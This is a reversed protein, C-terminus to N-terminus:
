RAPAISAAERAAPSTNRRIAAGPRTPDHPRSLCAAAAPDFTAAAISRAIIRVPKDTWAFADPRHVGDFRGAVGAGEPLGFLGLAELLIRGGLRAMGARAFAVNAAMRTAQPRKARKGGHGKARKPPSPM